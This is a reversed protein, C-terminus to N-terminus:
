AGPCEKSENMSYPLPVWFKLALALTKRSFNFMQDARESPRIMRYVTWGATRASFGVIMLLKYVVVTWRGYHKRYFLMINNHLEEFYELNKNVVTATQGLHHVVQADHIYCVKWGGQNMRYCWDMDNYYISFREDFMGVTELVERRVLFAAAMLHDVEGTKDYGFTTMEGRSFFRIRPFLRDFLLMDCCHTWLTPFGKVSPQLAGNPYVLMPGCAGVDPHADMFSALTAISGSRVVTDSNLLFLYTGTAMRMGVNNPKAFGENTRNRLLHVHPFERRVMDVSGDSSGNDIVIVELGVRSEESRVSNLCARLLERTNLNVIIVSVDTM